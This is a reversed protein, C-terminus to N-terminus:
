GYELAQERHGMEKHLTSLAAYTGALGNQYGINNPDVAAIREAIELDKLRYELAEERRGIEKYLTSM